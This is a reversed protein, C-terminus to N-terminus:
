TWSCFSGFRRKPHSDVSGHAPSISPRLTEYQNENETCKEWNACALRTQEPVRKLREAGLNMLGPNRWLFHGFAATKSADSAATLRCALPISGTASSWTM